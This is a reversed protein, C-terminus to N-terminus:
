PQAPLLVRLCETRDYHHSVQHGQGEHPRFVLPKGCPEEEYSRYYLLQHGYNRRRDLTM